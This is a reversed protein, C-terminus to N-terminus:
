IKYSYKLQVFDINIVTLSVNSRSPRVWYKGVATFSWSPLKNIYFLQVNKTALSKWGPPTNPSFVSTAPVAFTGGASSLCWRPLTRGPGPGLHTSLLSPSSLAATSGPSPDAPPSQDLPVAGWRCRQSTSGHRPWTGEASPEAGQPNVKM